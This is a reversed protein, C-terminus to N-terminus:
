PAHTQTSEPPCLTEIQTRAQAHPKLLKSRKHLAKFRTNESAKL